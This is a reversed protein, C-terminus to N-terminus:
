LFERLFPSFTTYSVVAVDAIIDTGFPIGIMKSSRSLIFGVQHLVAYTVCKMRQPIFHPQGSRTGSRRSQTIPLDSLYIAAEGLPFGAPCVSNPKCVLDERGRNKEARM